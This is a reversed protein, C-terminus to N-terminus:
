RVADKPMFGRVPLGTGDKKVTFASVEYTLPDDQGIVGISIDERIRECNAETALQIAQVVEGVKAASWYNNAATATPCVFALSKGFVEVKQRTGVPGLDSLRVYAEVLDYSIINRVITAKAIDGDQETVEVAWQFKLVGCDASNYMRTLAEKSSCYVLDGKPEMMTGDAHALQCFLLVVIGKLLNVPRNGVTRKRNIESDQM